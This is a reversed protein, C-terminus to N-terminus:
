MPLGSSVPREVEEEPGAHAVGVAAHTRQAAVDELGEVQARGPM